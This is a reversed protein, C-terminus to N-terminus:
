RDHPRGFELQDNVEFRGPREAEGHRLRDEGVSVLHDFLHMGQQSGANFKPYHELVVARGGPETNGLHGHGNLV